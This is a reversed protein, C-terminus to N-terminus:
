NKGHVGPYVVAPITQCVWHPPHMGQWGIVPYNSDIPIFCSLYCKDWHFTAYMNCGYFVVAFNSVWVSWVICVCMSLICFTVQEFNFLFNFKFKEPGITKSFFIKYFINEKEYEYLSIPLQFCVIYGIEHYKHPDPNSDGTHRLLRIFPATMRIIDSFGLGRTVALTACYLDRGAWLGQARLMPKFKTTKWQCHHRRWILSCNNLPVYLLLCVSLCVFRM